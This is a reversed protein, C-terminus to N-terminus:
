SAKRMEGYFEAESIGLAHALRELQEARLSQHGHEIRSLASYHMDAAEALQRVSLGRIERWARLRSGPTLTRTKM